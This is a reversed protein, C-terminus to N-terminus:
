EIIELKEEKFLRDRETYMLFVDSSDGTDYKEFHDKVNKFVRKEPYGPVRMEMMSWYKIGLTNQNYAGEVHQEIEKPLKARIDDTMYITGGSTNGSYLSASLYSDWLNFFSFFPMIWFLLFMILVPRARLSSRYSAFTAKDKKFLLLVFIIMAINWPWVVHNYNHGLPSMDILILLHMVIAFYMATRRTRLFLLGLGMFIETAPICYGIYKLWNPLEGEIGKTVPELLWPYTDNIFQPNIKQLGSYLYIGAIIFRMGNLAQEHRIKDERKWSVFCLLIMMCYYQFVWPQWRNQDLLLVAGFLICFIIILKKPSPLAVILVLLLSVIGLIIWDVPAPPQPLFSLLPTHPFFRETLWLKHSLLIGALLALALVIKM